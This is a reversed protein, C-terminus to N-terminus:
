VRERCSARGIECVDAFSVAQRKDVNAAQINLHQELMRKVPEYRSKISSKALGKDKFQHKTFRDFLEVTTIETANKGITRPKYKLLTRDYYGFRVDNEIQCKISNAHALGTTSDEVGTSISVRKGTEPCVWRLLLRSKRSEITVKMTTFITTLNDHRLM